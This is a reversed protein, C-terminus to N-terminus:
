KFKGLSRLYAASDAIDKEIEQQSRRIGKIGEIELTMPGTYKHERLIALVAPFDVVGLGLAPFNWTEFEGHHDKLEVTAVYDVIKSLETPADTGRNYYHINGTDFNVRVNPHNVQRMTERQVDGNTGLDPHTELAIIVGHKRALDGARRLREYIVQQDVDCRKVSLFLFRVGMRECTALQEALRDVGSRLSLDADGRFVVVTLGHEALRKRTAEVQDPAPVSMFVHRIGISPLHTWAAEEFEQYNALRCALVNPPETGEPGEDRRARNTRPSGTAGSEPPSSGPRLARDIFAYAQQRIEAPFSHGADPHVVALNGEAGMWDYVPWAAALCEEVGAVVFNDDQRPANVFVTRPALAGLVEPWDFPMRQPDNGFQSAIRPMYRRNAYNKLAGGGYPSTAYSTFSNFGCSSVVVNVRSDFAALWLANHGGLSHGICGMRAADVEPLSQLLDLSRIHNWIGKMTGSVYGHEYPDYESQRYDGFTWYDPSLTVYGREALELAYHLDPSGGLGAPEDKGIEVTQHLCLLAPTRGPRDNPILLYATVLDDPEARYTIKRRTVKPLKVEELVKLDLPLNRWHDPLPGMVQQMNLLIQGRRREWDAPTQVPQNRGDADRYALLNTRDALSRPPPILEGKVGCAGPGSLLSAVLVAQVPWSRTKPM